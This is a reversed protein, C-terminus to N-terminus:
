SSGSARRAERRQTLDDMPDAVRVEALGLRSRDSPTLGCASLASTIQADLQRLQTVAPHTVTQGANTEYWRGATGAQDLYTRLRAREDWAECLQRVVLPDTGPAMWSRAGSWVIRWVERGEDELSEPPEPISGDSPIGDGPMPAAPLDKKSPNGAKRHSEVPKAPRGTPRGTKPTAM